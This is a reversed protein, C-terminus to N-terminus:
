WYSTINWYLKFAQVKERLFELSHKKKSMPYNKGGIEGNEGGYIPGLVLTSSVHIEITQGKGESPVVRGTASISAHVGGSVAVSEMGVTSEKTMVLQISKPSSGDNLEVFLLQDKDGSRATRVWGKVTIEQGIAAVGERLLDKIRTRHRSWKGTTRGEGLSVPSTLRGQVPAFDFSDSSSLTMGTTMYWRFVSPYLDRTLVNYKLSATLPSFVAIDALSLTEGVIYTKGSLHSELDRLYRSIDEIAKQELKIRDTPSLLFEPKGSTVGFLAQLPVEFDNWSVELWKDVDSGTTTSISLSIKTSPLSSLYKMIDNVKYLKIDKGLLTITKADPDKSLLDDAPILQLDCLSPPIGHYSLVIKLKQLCYDDAIAYITTAM